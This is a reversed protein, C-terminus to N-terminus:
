RIFAYLENKSRCKTVIMKIHRIIYNYWLKIGWVEQNTSIIESM